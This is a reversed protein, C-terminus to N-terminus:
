KKVEYHLEVIGNKYPTVSLLHLTQEQGIQDFFLKGEGLIIPIVSLRIEDALKLKIFEKALMAGGVMWVNKFRPRLQESVFQKLDCSYLEVKPQEVSLKRSTLVITPTDGYPWGYMKSLALALEYTHSGMVYCDVTKVFDAMEQQTLEIGQEYHDVTNFWAIDNDKAAIMGDLSSVMHITLKFPQTQIEMFARHNQSTLLKLLFILVIAREM